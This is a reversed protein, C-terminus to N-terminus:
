QVHTPKRKVKFERSCIWCVNTSCRHHAFSQTLSSPLYNSIYSETGEKLISTSWATYLWGCPLTFSLHPSFSWSHCLCLLSIKKAISPPPTSVPPNLIAWAGEDTGTLVAVENRALPKSNIKDKWYQARERYLITKAFTPLHREDKRLSFTTLVWLQSDSWSLRQNGAGRKSLSFYQCVSM